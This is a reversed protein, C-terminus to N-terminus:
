YEGSSQINSTDKNAYQGNANRGKTNGVHNRIKYNLLAIDANADFYQSKLMKLACLIVGKEYDPIFYTKNKSKPTELHRKISKIVNLNKERLQSNKEVDRDIM